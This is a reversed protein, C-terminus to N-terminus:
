GCRAEELWSVGGGDFAGVGGDFAWLEEGGENREEIVIKERIVDLKEKYLRV